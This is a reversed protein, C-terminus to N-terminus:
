LALEDVFTVFVGRKCKPCFVEAPRRPAGWSEQISMCFPFEYFRELEHSNWYKHTRVPVYRKMLRFHRSPDMTRLFRHEISGDTKRFHHFIVRPLLGQLEDATLSQTAPSETIPDPLGFSSPRPHQANLM